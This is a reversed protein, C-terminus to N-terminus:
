QKPFAGCTEVRYDKLAAPQPLALTRLVFNQMSWNDGVTGGGKARGGSVHSFIVNFPDSDGQANTMDIVGPFELQDKDMM